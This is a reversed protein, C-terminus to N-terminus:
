LRNKTSKKRKRPTSIREQKTMVAVLDVIASYVDPPLARLQELLRGPTVAGANGEEETGDEIPPEGTLLWGVRCGLRNALGIAQHASLERRGSLYHGVASRTTVGLGPTIDDYTLGRREMMQRARDTWSDPSQRKNSMLRGLLMM